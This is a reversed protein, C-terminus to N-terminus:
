WLVLTRTPWCLFILRIWHFLYFLIIGLNNLLLLVPQQLVLHMVGMEVDLLIVWVALKTKRIGLEDEQLWGITLILLHSRPVTWVMSHVYHLASNQPWIVGLVDVNVIILLKVHLIPCLNLIGLAQMLAIGAADGRLVITTGNYCTGCWTLALECPIIRDLSAM